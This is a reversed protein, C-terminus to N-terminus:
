REDVTRKLAGGMREILSLTLQSHPDDYAERVLGRLQEVEAVLAAVDDLGLPERREWLELARRVSGTTRESM